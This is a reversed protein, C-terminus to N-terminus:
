DFACHDALIDEERRAGTTRREDAHVPRASVREVLELMTKLADSMVLAAAAVTDAPSAPGKAAQSRLTREQDARCSVAQKWYREGPLRLWVDRWANRGEGVVALTFGRPSVRRGQFLIDDGEVRAHYTSQRTSMRLETGSPLFLTKWQYGQSSAPDASAPSPQPSNAAIWARIAATAAQVVSLKSGSNRLHLVLEAVLHTPVTHSGIANM